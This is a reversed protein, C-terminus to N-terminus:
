GVTKQAYAATWAEAVTDFGLTQIAYAEYTLKATSAAEMNEKTVATSNVSITNNELLNWSKVSDTVKVERYWVDTTGPVLTWGSGAKTLMSTYNLYTAANNEELFRVFLYVDVDTVTGDVAVVPDKAYTAGPVMENVWADAVSNNDTDTNFTETLTINIGAPSFTNVVPDTTDMLWALTGGVGIGILLVVALLAAVIKKANM